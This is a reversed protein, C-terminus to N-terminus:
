STSYKYIKPLQIIDLPSYRNFIDNFPPKLFQPECFLRLMRAESRPGPDPNRAYPMQGLARSCDVPDPAGFLAENCYAANSPSCQLVLVVSTLFFFSSSHM